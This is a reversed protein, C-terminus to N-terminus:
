ASSAMPWAARVSGACSSRRPARAIARHTNRVVFDLQRKEGREFFGPAESIFAHDLSQPPENRGLQTCYPPYPSDVRVLLPNLDIDDLHEAGRSIQEILETRGIVDELRRFGIDALLERVEEAIFTM